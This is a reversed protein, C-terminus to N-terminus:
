QSRSAAVIKNKELGIPHTTKGCLKNRLLMTSIELFVTSTGLTKRKYLADM